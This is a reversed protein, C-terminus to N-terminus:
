ERRIQLLKPAIIQLRKVEFHPTLDHALNRNQLRLISRAVLKGTVRYQRAKELLPRMTLGGLPLLYECNIALGMSLYRTSTFSNVSPLTTLPRIMSTRVLSTNTSM